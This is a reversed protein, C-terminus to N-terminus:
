PDYGKGKIYAPSQDCQDRCSAMTRRAGGSPPDPSKSTYEEQLMTM